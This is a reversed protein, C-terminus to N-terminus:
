ATVITVSAITYDPFVNTTIWCQKNKLFDNEEYTISYKNNISKINIKKIDRLNIHGSAAKIFAEKIAFLTSSAEVKDQSTELYKKEETTFSYDLFPAVGNRSVIQFREKEVINIGLGFIRM